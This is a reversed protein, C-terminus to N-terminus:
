KSKPHRGQQWEPERYLEKAIMIRHRFERCKLCMQEDIIGFGNTASIGWYHRCRFLWKLIKKM